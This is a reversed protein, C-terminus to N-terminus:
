REGAPMNNADFQRYQEVLSPDILDAGGIDALGQWRNHNKEPPSEQITIEVQKGIFSKLEPLNLHVSDIQRTVHITSM